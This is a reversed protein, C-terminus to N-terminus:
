LASILLPVLYILFVVLVGVVILAYYAIADLKDPLTLRWKKLKWALLAMAFLVGGVITMSLGISFGQPTFTLSILNEGEELYFATFGDYVEYLEKSKGNITLRLGRNYPISLFVCEGGKAEYRGGVCNNKQTM